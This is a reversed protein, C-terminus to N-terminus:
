GTLFSDTLGSAHGLLVDPTCGAIDRSDHILHAQDFYGARAAIAGWTLSADARRMGFARQLRTIRLVQKPSLGVGDRFLTQVRRTSLGAALALGRVSMPESAAAIFSFLRPLVGDAARLRQARQTLLAVLLQATEARQDLVPALLREVGLAGEDLSVINDRLEAGSVGLFAAASWPHFRIGWLDIRGSAEISIARTIQGAILRLPQVHSAGSASHRIFPDALNLVLEVCGDPIIAEPM